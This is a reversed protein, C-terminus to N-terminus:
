ANKGHDEGILPFLVMITKAKNRDWDIYGFSQLIDLYKRISWQTIGTEKTMERLSPNRGEMKNESLYCWFFRIKNILKNNLRGKM